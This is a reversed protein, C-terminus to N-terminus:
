RGRDGGDPCPDRALHLVAYSHSFALTPCVIKEWDWRALANFREVLERRKANDSIVKSFQVEAVSIMTPKDEFRAAASALLIQDFQRVFDGKDIKKRKAYECTCEAIRPSVKAVERLCREASTPIVGAAIHRQVGEPLELLRLLLGVRPAKFNLKEAIEKKTALGWEEALAKIGRAQDIDDLTEQHLNEILSDRIAEARTGERILVPVQEVGGMRAATVRRHGAVVSYRSNGTPRVAISQVVGSEALSEALRKLGDEDMHTRANFGEEIDIKDVDILAPASQAM